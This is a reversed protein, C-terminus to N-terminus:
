PSAPVACLRVGVGADPLGACYRAIERSVETRAATEARARDGATIADIARGGLYKTILGELALTLLEGGSFAAYPQLLPQNVSNLMVRQTEYGYLGGPPVLRHKLDLDALVEQIHHQEVEVKFTPRKLLSEQLPTPVSLGDRIRDLSVPLDLTPTEAPSTSPSQTGGTSSVTTDQRPAAVSSALVAALLFGVHMGHDDHRMGRRGAMMLTGAM